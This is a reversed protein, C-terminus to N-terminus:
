ESAFVRVVSYAGEGLREVLRADLRVHQVTAEVSQAHVGYRGVNALQHIVDLMCLPDVDCTDEVTKIVRAVNDGGYM